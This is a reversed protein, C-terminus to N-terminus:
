FHNRGKGPDQVRQNGGAKNKTDERFPCGTRIGQHRILTISPFPMFLVEKIKVRSYM